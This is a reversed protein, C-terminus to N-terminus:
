RESHYQHGFPSSAGSGSRPSNQPPRQRSGLSPPPRVTTPRRGASRFTTGRYRTEPPPPIERVSPSRIHTEVTHREQPPRIEVREREVRSDPPLPVWVPPPSSVIVPNSPPVTTPRPASPFLPPAVVIANAPSGIRPPSPSLSVAAVPSFHHGARISRVAAHIAGTIIFVALSMVFNFILFSRFTRGRATLRMYM